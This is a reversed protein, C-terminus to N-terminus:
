ARTAAAASAIAPRSSNVGDRAPNVGRRRKISAATRAATMPSTASAM